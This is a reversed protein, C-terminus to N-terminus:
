NCSKGKKTETSNITPKGPAVSPPRSIPKAATENLGHPSVNGPERLEFIEEVPRGFYRALGLAVELSPSIDGRELRTVYARSKHLRIALQSKNIGKAARCEALWNNLGSKM